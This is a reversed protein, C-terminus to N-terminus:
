VRSESGQLLSEPGVRPYVPCLVVREGEAEADERDRNSETDQICLQVNETLMPLRETLMPVNETLM